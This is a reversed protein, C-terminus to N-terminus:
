LTLSFLSPAGIISCINKKSLSSFFLFPISFFLLPAEKSIRNTLYLNLNDAKREDKM